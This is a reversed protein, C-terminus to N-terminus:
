SSAAGLEPELQLLLALPLGIVNTIDGDVRDVLTAGLGQIAYGGARERWEGSGIYRDLDADALERFRVASSATGAREEGEAPGVLVLGSLVEHSRGSLLQLFERARGEDGPKGLLRGDVVVETDCGIVVTGPRAGVAMAKRRASELVAEAPEGEGVEEVDPVVVEFEVGLRQLIERRQPSRSALVIQM